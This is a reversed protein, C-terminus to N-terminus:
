HKHHAIDTTKGDDTKRTNNLVYDGLVEPGIKAGKLLIGRLSSITYWHSRLGDTRLM